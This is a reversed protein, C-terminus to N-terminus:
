VTLDGAYAYYTSQGDIHIYEYTNINVLGQAERERLRGDVKSDVGHSRRYTPIIRVSIIFIFAM